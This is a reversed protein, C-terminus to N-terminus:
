DINIFADLLDNRIAQKFYEFMFLGERTSAYPGGFGDLSNSINLEVHRDVLEYISIITKHEIGRCIKYLPDYWM